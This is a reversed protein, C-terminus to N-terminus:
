EMMEDLLEQRGAVRLHLHYLKYVLIGVVLVLLVLGFVELFYLVSVAVGAMLFAILATVFWGGIVTLVGSVRRAASSGDWVGDALSTGMAVMFTVYTTSLPLKMSTAVSIVFAAVMLNVGARILDYDHDGHHDDDPHIWRKRVWDEFCQPVLCLFLRYIFSFLGMVGKTFIGPKWKELSRNHQSSLHIGTNVVTKAKASTFMAVVMIVGALFLVWWPTALESVLDAGLFAYTGAISVGIFNALDNGAFAMALSATGILILFSLIRVRCRILVASIFSFGVFSWTLIMWLYEQFWGMVDDTMFTAHAGGKYFIFFLISTFALGCWLAGWRRLQHKFNFTFFLRSLFQIFLGALFAVGVSLLIGLIIRIASTSNVADLADTFGGKWVAMVFAAGLLEFVISVTTSTPLGFTSYLDLLMIDTIAVAAFIMIVETTGFFSPHFIGKRAVEIIGDSFFAGILVGIAAVIMITKRSAVRSGIASQLFNVADNVVGVILDGFAFVILVIVLFFEFSVM